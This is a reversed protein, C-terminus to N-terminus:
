LDFELQKRAEREEKIGERIGHFVGKVYTALMIVSVIKLAILM